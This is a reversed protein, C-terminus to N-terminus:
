HYPVGSQSSPIEDDGITATNGTGLVGYAGDGWCRLTGDVLLACTHNGGAAISVAPGGVDVLGVADPLEDDGVNQTKGYGLQGELGRGWCKIGGAATLVCNHTLGSTIFSAEVGLSM